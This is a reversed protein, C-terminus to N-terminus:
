KLLNGLAAKFTVRVNQRVVIHSQREEWRWDRGTLEYSPGRVRISQDGEAVREPVRLMAKPSKVELNQMGDPQFMVLTFDHLEILDRSHYIASAGRLDSTKRETAADFVPLHFDPIPANPVLDALAITRAALGLAAPLWRRAFRSLSIRPPIM